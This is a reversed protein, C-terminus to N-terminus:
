RSSPSWAPTPSCGRWRAPGASTRTATPPPSASTATSATASTTATSCTPPAARPRGAARELAVAVTSKGSGSLGTLWVTAGRSAPPRARSSRPRRALRRQHEGDAGADTVRTPGLIMGAGVTTNTAEDILIFSGTTRNRRYEDFFLPATTRLSVRGIENLALAPPTRTATCRTSTSGTSCTRSWRGPRAPPTSSRDAQAGPACRRRETMWCVM